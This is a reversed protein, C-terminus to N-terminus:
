RFSAETAILRWEDKPSLIRAFTWIDVSHRKEPKAIVSQGSCDCPLEFYEAAFRISIEMRDDDLHGDLIKPLDIRSFITRTREQRAEIADSFTDYIESSVLKRLTERDGSGYAAVILEYAALREGLFDTVAM